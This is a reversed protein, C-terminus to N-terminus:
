EPEEEAEGIDQDSIPDAPTELLAGAASLYERPVLVKAVALAGVTFNRTSDVQSLVIAPIGNAELRGAILRAEIETSVRRVIEWDPIEEDEMRTDVEKYFPDREIEESCFPCREAEGPVEHLCAPCLLM